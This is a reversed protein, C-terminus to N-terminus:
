RQGRSGETLQSSQLATRGDRQLGELEGRVKCGPSGHLWGGHGGYIPDGGM